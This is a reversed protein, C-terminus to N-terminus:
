KFNGTGYSTEKFFWWHWYCLRYYEMKNKFDLHVQLLLILNDTVIAYTSLKGKRLVKACIFGNKGEIDQTKM